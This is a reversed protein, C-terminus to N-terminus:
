YCSNQWLVNKASRMLLTQFESGGVTLKVKKNRKLRVSPKILKEVCKLIGSVATKYSHMDNM